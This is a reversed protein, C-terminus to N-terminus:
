LGCGVAPALPGAVQAILEAADTAAQTVARRGAYVSRGARHHPGRALALLAALEVAITSRHGGHIPLGFRSRSGVVMTVVVRLEVLQAVAVALQDTAVGSSYRFRPRM